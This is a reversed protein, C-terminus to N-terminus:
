KKKELSKLAEQAKLNEPDIELLKKWYDVSTVVDEKVYYYFGLYSYVEAVEKKYKVLDKILIELAKEYYPKALGLTTETDLVSNVRARWFPGLYSNPSYKEVKAFMSDAEMYYDIRKLSDTKIDIGNASSYYSKGLNFYDAVTVNPKKKIYKMSFQLAQDFKKLKLHSKSLEDLLQFQTSDKAWAIKYNEIALSDNGSASLMKGYYAYDDTLIKDAPALTFFKDMVAKGNVLDKEEFSIYGILRLLVYDNPNQQILQSIMERAPGYQKDFFLSYAYHTVDKDAPSVNKHYIDFNTIAEKYQHNDYYVEGLSKYAHWYKPNIAIAKNLYDIAQPINRTSVMIQSAYQYAELINPDFFIVRDFDKAADSAKSEALDMLGDLFYAPANKGDVAIAMATYRRAETLNKPNQDYYFKAISVLVSADKKSKKVADKFYDAAAVPNSAVNIKGLGAYNGAYSSSAEVGSQYYIRASDANGTALYYEGMGYHAVANKPDDKLLASFVKKAAKYDKQNLLSLGDQASQAGAIQALCVMIVVIFSVKRIM